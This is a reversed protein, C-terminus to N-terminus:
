QAKWKLCQENSVARYMHEPIGANIEKTM